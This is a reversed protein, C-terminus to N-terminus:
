LGFQAWLLATLVYRRQVNENTDFCIQCSYVHSNQMLVKFILNSM